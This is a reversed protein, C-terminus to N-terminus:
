PTTPERAPPAQRGGSTPSGLWSSLKRSLGDSCTPLCRVEVQPQRATAPLMPIAPPQVPTERRSLKPGSGCGSALVALAILMLVSEHRRLKPM